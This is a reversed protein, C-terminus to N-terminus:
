PQTQRAKLQELLWSQDALLLPPDLPKTYDIDESYRNRQFISDIVQQLDLSVDPDPEELPVPLLPLPHQFYAPWVQCTPAEESRAVLLSYPSDPWPDLMPMKEGGRLLDIEVLNAEGLLLAQRKRSYQRWGESGRRKNTPSLVEICTVLRRDPDNVTIEIFRERFREAIFARLSVAERTAATGTAAARTEGASTPRGHPATVGVDPYFPTATKGETEVLEVLNREDSRVRYRPPLVAALARKVDGILDNHFDRWLGCAEIYPDMGPFPSKM